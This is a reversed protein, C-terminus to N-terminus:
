ARPGPGNVVAGSAQPGGGREIIIGQALFLALLSALSVVLLLVKVKMHEEKPVRNILLVFSRRHRM